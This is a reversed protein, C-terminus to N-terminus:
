PDSHEDAAVRAIDYVSDGGIAREAFTAPRPRVRHAILERWRHCVTPLGYNRGVGGPPRRAGCIITATM